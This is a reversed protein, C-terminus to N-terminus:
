RFDKLKVNGVVTVMFNYLVLKSSMKHRRLYNLKNFKVITPFLHIVASVVRRYQQIVYM